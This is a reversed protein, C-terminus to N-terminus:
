FVELCGKVVVARANGDAILFGFLLHIHFVTRVRFEFSLEAEKRKVFMTMALMIPEPIKVVLPNSMLSRPLGSIMSAQPDNATDDGEAASQRISLKSGCYWHRPHIRM